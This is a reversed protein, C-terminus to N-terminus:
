AGAFDIVVKIDDPERQLAQQFAEPGVRRTILQELWSPDARALMQPARYYHRRNVNVSGVVVLNKTRAHAV